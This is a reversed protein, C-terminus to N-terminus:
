LTLGNSGAFIAYCLNGFWEIPIDVPEVRSMRLVGWERSLLIIEGCVSLEGQGRV